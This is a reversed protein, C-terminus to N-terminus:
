KWNDALVGDNLAYQFILGLSLACNIVFNLWELPYTIGNQVKGVKLNKNELKYQWRYVNHKRFIQTNLQQM